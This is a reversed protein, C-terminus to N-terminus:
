EEWLYAAMGDAMSSKTLIGVPEDNELVILFNFNVAELLAFGAKASENAEITKHDHSLLEEVTTLKDKNAYLTDFNIVGKYRNKDDVIILTDISKERMLWVAEKLSDSINQTIAPKRMVDKCLLNDGQRRDSLHLSLFERITDNAPNELM